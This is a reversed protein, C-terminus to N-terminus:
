FQELFRLDNGLFLRIDPIGYRLMALRSLGLGFAFGSYRNPDFGGSRLVHPHVLGSPVLEIWTSRKCISCGEKCFPCRADMEFGPEVFPFYGPRLRIEIEKKFLARMFGRLTALLQAVTIKEGVVLGEMQWFTHEHSADLAENRFVRGPVIAKMPLPRKERVWREMGRVQVPSTHTRMLLRQGPKAKANPSQCWFTDQMDRAPHDSPINLADFNYYELEVEPGDLVSFGMSIFIDELEHQLQTLPHLHGLPFAQGPETWDFGQVNNEKAGAQSEFVQLREQIKNEIEGKLQNAAAGVKPREEASLSGLSRLLLQLEGKKGLYRNEIAKLEDQSKAQSIEESAAQRIKSLELEM